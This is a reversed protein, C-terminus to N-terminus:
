EALGKEITHGKKDIDYSRVELLDQVTVKSGQHQRLGLQPNVGGRGPGHLLWAQVCVTVSPTRWCELAM